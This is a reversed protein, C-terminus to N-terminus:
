SRWMLGKKLHIKGKNGFLFNVNSAQSYVEKLQNNCNLYFSIQHKIFAIEGSGTKKLQNVLRLVFIRLYRRYNRPKRPNRNM